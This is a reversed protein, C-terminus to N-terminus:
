ETKGGASAIAMVIEIFEDPVKGMISCNVQQQKSDFFYVVCGTANFSEIHKKSTELIKAKVALEVPLNKYNSKPGDEFTAQYIKDIRLQMEDKKM